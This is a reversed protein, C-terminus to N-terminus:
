WELRPMGRLLDETRKQIISEKTGDRAKVQVFEPVSLRYDRLVPVPNPDIVRVESGNTGRHLGLIASSSVSKGSGSEGVIGLTQGRELDFSMGDTAKVVGDVTPFHVKLDKVSLFPSV